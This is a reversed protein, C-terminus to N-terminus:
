GSCPPPSTPSPDRHASSVIRSYIRRERGAVVGREPHCKKQKTEHSADPNRLSGVHRAFAWQHESDARKEIHRIGLYGRRSTQLKRASGMARGEWRTGASRSDRLAPPPM